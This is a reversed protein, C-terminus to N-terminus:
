FFSYVSMKTLWRIRTKAYNLVSGEVVKRFPQFCTLLERFLPLLAELPSKVEVGGCHKSGTRCLGAKIYVPAPHM